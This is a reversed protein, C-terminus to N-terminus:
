NENFTEYDQRLFGDKLYKFTYHHITSTKQAAKWEALGDFVCDLVYLFLSDASTVIRKWHLHRTNINILLEKNPWDAIYYPDNPSVERNLFIKVVHDGVKIVSDPKLYQVTEKMPEKSAEIMEPPPVEELEIFDAFQSSELVERLEQLGIHIDVDSIGGESQEMEKYPKNAIQRFEQFENNLFVGIEEEENGEWQIDDKTHSVSFDDLWIEGVLRQNILDNRKDGYIEYPKWADPQGMIIRGRRIVAIGGKSRGGSGRALVGMWGKIIKENKLKTEFDRRYPQNNAAKLFDEKFSWEELENGGNIKVWLEAERIDVRYISRIYEELRNITRPHVARHLKEIEILTYHKLPDKKREVYDLDLNGEAVKEVDIEVEYEHECGRKKTIIRWLDGYWCAATKMGLGYESRGSTDTPPVGLKLARELDALDMGMATDSIRIRGKEITIDIELAGAEEKLIEHHDYWSQTSNDIFEALAYWAKYPLRRYSRIIRPHLELTINMDNSRLKNEKLKNWFYFDM